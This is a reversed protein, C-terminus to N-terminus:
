HSFCQPGFNLLVPSTNWRLFSLDTFFNTEAYLMTQQAHAMADAATIFGSLVEQKITSDEYCLSFKLGAKRTYKLLDLTRTNNIAYDNFSDMGYWDVIVGDIGSLKM